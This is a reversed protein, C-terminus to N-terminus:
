VNKLKGEAGPAMQMFMLLRQNAEEAKQEDTMPRYIYDYALGIIDQLSYAKSNAGRIYNFVGTTLLGLTNLVIKNGIFGDNIAVMVANFDDESMADPNAGHALLYTRTQLRL